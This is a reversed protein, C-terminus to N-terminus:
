WCWVHSMVEQKTASVVQQLTVKLCAVMVLCVCRRNLMIENENKHLFISIFSHSFCLYIFVTGPQQKLQVRQSLSAPLLFVSTCNCYRWWFWGAFQVGTESVWCCFLCCYRSWIVLDSGLHLVWHCAPELLLEGISTKLLLVFDFCALMDLFCDPLPGSTRCHTLWASCCAPVTLHLSLLCDSLSDTSIPRHGTCINCPKYPSTPVPSCSPSSPGTVLASPTLAAGSPTQADSVLLTPSQKWSFM